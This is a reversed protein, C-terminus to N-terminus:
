SAMFNKTWCGMVIHQKINNFFFSGFCDVFDGISEAGNRPGCEGCLMERGWLLEKYV